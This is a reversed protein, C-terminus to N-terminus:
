GCAPAGALICAPLAHRRGAPVGDHQRCFTSKATLGPLVSKQRVVQGVFNAVAYLLRWGAVCFLVSWTCQRSHQQQGKSSNSPATAWQMSCCTRKGGLPRCKDTQAQGMPLKKIGSQKSHIVVPGTVQYDARHQSSPGALGQLPQVDDWCAQPILQHVPAPQDHWSVTWALSPIRGENCCAMSSCRQWADCTVWNCNHSHGPALPHQEPVQPISAIAAPAQLV